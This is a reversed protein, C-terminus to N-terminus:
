KLRERFWEIVREVEERTMEELSTKESNTTALCAQLIAEEKTMNWFKGAKIALREVEKILEKDAPELKDLDEEEEEGKEIKQLYTIIESAKEIDLKDEERAIDIGFKERIEDITVGTRKLLNWLYRKQKETAPRFNREEEQNNNALKDATVFSSSREEKVGILKESVISELARLRKDIAEIQKITKAVGEIAKIKEEIGDIREVIYMFEHSDPNAIKQAKVEKEGEIHAKILDTFFENWTRDGKLRKAERYLERDLYIHITPM